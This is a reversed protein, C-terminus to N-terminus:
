PLREDCVPNAVEPERECDKRDNCGKSSGLVDIDETLGFIIWKLCQAM